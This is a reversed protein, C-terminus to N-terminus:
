LARCRTPCGELLPNDADKTDEKDASARRHGGEDDRGRALWGLRGGAHDAAVVLVVAAGVKEGAIDWWGEVNVFGQDEWRGVLAVDAGAPAKGHDVEKFGLVMGLTDALAEEVHVGIDGEALLGPEGPETVHAVLVWFDLGAVVTTEHEVRGFVLLDFGEVVEVVGPWFLSRNGDQGLADAWVPELWVWKWLVPGVEPAWAHFVGELWVLVWDLPGDLSDFASVVKLTSLLKKDLSVASEANTSWKWLEDVPDRALAAWECLRFIALSVSVLARFVARSTLVLVAVLQHHVCSFLVTDEQCGKIRLVHALETAVGHVNDTVVILPQEPVPELGWFHSSLHLTTQNQVVRPPTLTVRDLVQHAKLTLLILVHPARVVQGWHVPNWSLQLTNFLLCLSALDIVLKVARTVELTDAALADGVTSVEKVALVSGVAISCLHVNKFPKAVVHVNLWGSSAQVLDTNDLDVVCCRWICNLPHVDHIRREPGHRLVESRDGLGEDRVVLVLAAVPHEWVLSKLVHLPEVPIEKVVEPDEIDFNFESLM